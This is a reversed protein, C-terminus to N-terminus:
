HMVLESRGFNNSLIRFSKVASPPPTPMTAKNTYKKLSDSTVGGGWLSGSGNGGGKGGGTGGFCGGLSPASFVPFHVIPDSLTVISGMVAFM